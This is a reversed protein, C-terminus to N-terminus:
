LAATILLFREFSPSYLTNSISMSEGVKYKTLQAKRQYLEARPEVTSSILGRTERLWQIQSKFREQFDKYLVISRELSAHEEQLGLTLEELQSRGTLVDRELRSARPDDLFPVAQESRERLTKLLSHGHDMEGQLSQSSSLIDYEKFSKKFM